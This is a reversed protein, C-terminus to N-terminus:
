FYITDPPKMIGRIGGILGGLPGLWKSGELYDTMFSSVTPNNPVTVAPAAPNSLDFTAGAINKNTLIYMLLMTSTDMNGDSMMLLLVMNQDIKATDAIPTVPNTRFLGDLSMGAFNIPNAPPNYTERPVSGLQGGVMVNDVGYPADPFPIVAGSPTFVGTSPSSQPPPPTLEPVPSDSVPTLIGGTAEDVYYTFGNMDTVFGM